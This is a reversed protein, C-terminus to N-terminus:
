KEKKEVVTPAAEIFSAIKLTEKNSSIKVQGWSGLTTAVSPEAIVVEKANADLLKYKIQVAKGHNDGGHNNAKEIKGVLLVGEAPRVLPMWDEEGEPIFFEDEGKIQRGKDKFTFSTKVMYGPKGTPRTSPISALLSSSTAIAVFTTILTALIFLHFSPAM